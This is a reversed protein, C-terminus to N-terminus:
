VDNDAQIVIVNIYLALCSSFAKAIVISKSYADSAMDQTTKIQAMQLITLNTPERFLIIALLTVIIICM